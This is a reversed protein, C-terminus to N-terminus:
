DPRGGDYTQAKFLHSDFEVDELAVTRIPLVPKELLATLKIYADSTKFLGGAAAIQKQKSKAVYALLASGAVLSIIATFPGPGGFLNMGTHALGAAQSIPTAAPPDTITITAHTWLNLSDQIVYTVQAPHTVDFLSNPTFTVDGTTPDVTFVGERVTVSTNTCAPAIESVDCLKISTAVLTGTGNVDNTIPSLTVAMLPATERADNLALPNGPPTITPMLLSTATGPGALGTWDNTIQYTVPSTVTGSFGSVPTFVVEGTSTNLVYTGDDTTVTSASCSPASEGVACLKISSAVVNPAPATEGAPVVGGADNLWPRLTVSQGYAATGTDVNALPFPPPVVVVQLTSSVTQGVSDNVQYSVATATGHYGAVPVFKVVGNSLVTYTGQGAVTKSTLSCNPATQNSDCLKVTSPVLDAAASGPGDNGLVAIFQTTDQAGRSADSAATPAPPVVPTLTATATQGTVDTVRYSVPILNGPQASNSATFSVVGTSANISWSGDSTTLSTVCGTTPTTNSSAVLCSAGAGSTQLQAGSALPTSGGTLSTFAVTGGPLVAKQEPLAVPAVPATVTATYTGTAKQGLSDTIVYTVAPATGQFSPLPDFTVVGNSVSYTGVNAVTLTTASTCTTTTGSTCLRVSAPDLTTGFGAVDGAALDSTQNQDWAGSTTENDTTPVGTVTATYTSSVTQGSTDSVQYTMAPAVGTFSADPTFTIVGTTANM